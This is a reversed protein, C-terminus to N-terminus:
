SQRLLQLLATLYNSVMVYAMKIGGQQVHPTVLRM